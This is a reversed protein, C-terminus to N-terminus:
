PSPLFADRDAKLPQVPPLPCEPFDEAVQHRFAEDAYYQLHLLSPDPQSDTPFDDMDFQLCGGPAPLLVRKPLVERCLLDYLAEDTLHDTYDFFIRLDGLALLLSWLFDAVPGDDQAPLTFGKESSLHELLTKEEGQEFALAREWVQRQEVLSLGPLPLHAVPEGLVKEAQARLTGLALLTDLSSDNSPSDM